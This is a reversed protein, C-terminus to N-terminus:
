TARSPSAGVGSSAFEAALEDVFHDLAVWDTYDHDRSTDTSGGSQKAIRKMVFRILFNYKSYMLAGAVPKVHAPRWGTEAFFRDLMERVDTVFRAHEEPTTGPREAGAESLTVSLFASPMSELKDRHERVFRVIEPEHRGGHVSAALIAAAYDDLQVGDAHNRLNKVEADLGRARLGAAVRDAIRETQGERTAYLIAIPKMHEENGDSGAAHICASFRAHNPSFVCGSSPAYSCARKSRSAKFRHIRRECKDGYANYDGLAEVTPGDV